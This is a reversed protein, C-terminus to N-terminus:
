RASPCSVCAPEAAAVAGGVGVLSVVAPGICCLSAATATAAAGVGALSTGVVAFWSASRNEPTHEPSTV